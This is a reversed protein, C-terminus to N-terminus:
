KKNLHYINKEDESISSPAGSMLDKGESSKPFAIVDRISKTGLIVSMLRDLGLAIGGHPPCGTKLAFLLHELNQTNEGLKHLVKEQLDAEHIRISGGGVEWGNLVLDYHTSIVELPKTDLLEIHSDLPRTFPHHASVLKSDEELFLPFDVVWLFNMKYTDKVVRGQEELLSALTVRIKGLTQLVITKAGTCAFVIDTPNIPLNNQLCKIVVASFKHGYKVEVKEIDACLYSLSCHGFQERLAKEMKRIYTKSVTDYAGPIVICYSVHPSETGCEATINRLKMEYRTDPKDVGYNEMAESYSLRPFPISIEPLSDSWSSYLIDEVLSMVFNRNTWSLEIDLQTFEPQRDPRAGEDRYCRAIQFYRDVGGIMLLQKFQQPSQVLSYFQGSHRTPVVFEQAGGPTRKFLTPTEVDIFKHKHILVERLNMLFNSRFKINSLFDDHRFDLYRYQLRLFESPRKFPRINFPLDTIVPNVVSVSVAKIEVEGTPMSKNCEKDPRKHVTGDVKIVSELPLNFIASFDGDTPFMVQVAGYGDRLILFKTMRRFQVWGYLTVAEGVHQARLEGCTHTRDTFRNAGEKEHNVNNISLASTKKCQLITSKTYAYNSYTWYRPITGTVIIKSWTNRFIKMFSRMTLYNCIIELM